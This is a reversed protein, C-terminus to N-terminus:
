PQRTIRYRKVSPVDFEDVEVAFADTPTAAMIRTTTPVTLRAIVNGTTSIVRYQYSSGGEALRVWLTGDTAVAASTVPPYYKPIFVAERIAEASHGRPGDGDIYADVLSDGRSKPLVTPSYPYRRTWLVRGSTTIASVLFAADRSSTAATRDIVYFFDGAPALVHMGADSFRQPGIRFSGRENPGVAFTTNKVRIWVLTDRVEGSRKVSIIAKREPDLAERSVPMKPTAYGIAGGPVMALIKGAASPITSLVEGQLSFFTTRRQSADVVWLSDGLMGVNSVSSYEGPGKGERGIRRLHRGSRDFADISHNVLDAIVVSGDSLPLISSIRTFDHGTGIPVPSVLKWEAVAQASVVTPFLAALLLFRVFHPTPHSCFTAKVWNVGASM